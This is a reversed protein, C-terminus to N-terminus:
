RFHDVVGAIFTELLAQLSMKTLCFPMNLPQLLNEFENPL